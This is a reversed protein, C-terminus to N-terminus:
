MRPMVGASEALAGGTGSGGGGEMTWTKGSGTQGYAFVCGNFGQLVKDLIVGGTNDYVQQQTADSGLVFDFTFSREQATGKSSGTTDEAMTVATPGVKQVVVASKLATERQVLPRIRVVVMVSTPIIGANDDTGGAGPLALPPLSSAASSDSVAVSGAGCCLLRSLM